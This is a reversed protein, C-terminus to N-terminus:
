CRQVAVAIDYYSKNSVINRRGFTKLIPVGALILSCSMHLKLLVVQAFCHRKLVNGATKM